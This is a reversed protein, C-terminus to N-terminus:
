RLREEADLRALRREAETVSPLSRYTIAYVGVETAITLWSAARMVWDLFLGPPVTVLWALIIAGVDTTLVRLVFRRAEVTM